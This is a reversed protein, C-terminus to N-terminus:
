CSLGKNTGGSSFGMARCLCAEDENAAHGAEREDAQQREDAAAQRPAPSPRKDRSRRSPSARPWADVNRTM